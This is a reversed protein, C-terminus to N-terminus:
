VAHIRTQEGVSAYERLSDRTLIPEVAQDRPRCFSNAYLSFFSYPPFYCRPRDQGFTAYPSIHYVYDRTCYKKVTPHPHPNKPTKLTFIYFNQKRVWFDAHQHIAHCFRNLPRLELDTSLNQTCLLFFFFQTTVKAIHPSTVGPAIKVLHPKHPSITSTIVHAINRSQRNLATLTTLPTLQGEGM